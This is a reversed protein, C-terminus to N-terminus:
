CLAHACLTASHEDGLMTCGLGKDSLVHFKCDHFSPLPAHFAPLKSPRSLAQTDKMM